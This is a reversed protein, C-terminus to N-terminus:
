PEGRWGESGFWLRAGLTIVSPLYGDRKSTADVFYEYRRMASASAYLDLHTTNSFNFTAKPGVNITMYSFQTNDEGYQKSVHFVNAEFAGRIGFTISSAPRYEVNLLAPISGNIRFRQGMQWNLAIIPFPFFRRTQQSYSVGAGLSFTDSFKYIAGASAGFAVDDMSIRDKFDSAFGGNITASIALHAGLLQMIGLSLTPAHLASTPLGRSTSKPFDILDYSLGTLLLTSRGLPIPSGARFRFTQIGLSDKTDPSEPKEPGLTSREYTFSVTSNAGQARAANTACLVALAAFAALFRRMPLDSDTTIPAMRVSPAIAV